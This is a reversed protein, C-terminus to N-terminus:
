PPAHALGDSGILLRVQDGVSFLAEGLQQAVCGAVVVLVDPNAGTLRRVDKLAAIVRQEPKERVSCTNLVVVQAEAAEARVFGRAELSLALWRSDNANM